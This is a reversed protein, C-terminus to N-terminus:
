SPFTPPKQEFMNKFVTYVPMYEVINSFLLVIIMCEEEKQFYLFFLELILSDLSFVFLVTCLILKGLNEHKKM